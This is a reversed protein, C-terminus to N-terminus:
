LPRRFEYAASHFGPSGPFVHACGAQSRHICACPPSGPEIIGVECIPQMSLLTFASQYPPSPQLQINNKRLYEIGAAMPHGPGPQIIFERSIFPKGCAKLEEADRAFITAVATAAAAGATDATSAAASDATAAAADTASATTGAAAAATGAAAISSSSAESMQRYLPFFPHTDLTFSVECSQVTHRIGVNQTPGWVVVGSWGVGSTPWNGATSTCMTDDETVDQIVEVRKMCHLAVPVHGHSRGMDVSAHMSTSSCTHGCIMLM